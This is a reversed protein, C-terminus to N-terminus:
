PTPVLCKSVHVPLCSGNVRFVIFFMQGHGGVRHVLGASHGSQCGLHPISPQGAFCSMLWCFLWCIPCPDGMLSVGIGEYKGPKTLYPDCVGPSEWGVQPGRHPFLAPLAGEVPRYQWSM